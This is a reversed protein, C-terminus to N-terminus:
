AAESLERPLYKHRIYIAASMLAEGKATVRYRRRRPIKAVLGHARLLQILRTVRACRRRREAADQTPPAYLQRAVDQNRFGGLRPEGRLVALFLAQDAPSLPQLARQRRRGFKAPRSAADLEARAQQWGDLATLAELYRSNATRSIEAYRGLWAVGQLLPQWALERQGDPRTRWRRVRFDKPDNIVTELRLIGALKDYLKLRKAGVRQKVCAGAVRRSRQTQM